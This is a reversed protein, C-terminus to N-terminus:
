VHRAESQNRASLAQLIRDIDEVYPLLDVQGEQLSRRGEATRGLESFRRARRALDQALAAALGLLAQDPLGLIGTDDIDLTSM